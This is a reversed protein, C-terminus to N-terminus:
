AALARRRDATAPMAPRGARYWALMDEFSDDGWFLESGVAFCPSGFVGCHRAIATEAYLQQVIEAGSAVALVREPDQGAQKLAFAMNGEAERDRQQNFWRRYAHRVYTQGWGERLGLLAVRNLLSPDAGPYAAPFSVPVGRKRAGAAVPARDPCGGNGRARCIAPLDFVRWRFAIGTRREVDALRMVPLYTWPSGMTFWFEIPAQQAM